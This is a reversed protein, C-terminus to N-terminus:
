QTDYDLDEDQEERTAEGGGRGFYLSLPISGGDEEESLAATTASSPHDNDTAVVTSTASSTATTTVAAVDMADLEKTAQQMVKDAMKNLFARYTVPLYPPPLVNEPLHHVIDAPVHDTLRLSLVNPHGFYHQLLLEPYADSRMVGIHRHKRENPNQLVDTWIDGVVMQLMDDLTMINYEGFPRGPDQCIDASAAHYDYQQTIALLTDFQQPSFQEHQNPYYHVAPDFPVFHPMFYLECRSPSTTATFDPDKDDTDYSVFLFLFDKSLRRIDLTSTVNYPTLEEHPLKPPSPPFALATKTRRPFYERNAPLRVGNDGGSGRPPSMYPATSSSVSNALMTRASRPM